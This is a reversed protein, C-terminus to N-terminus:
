RANCPVGNSNVFPAEAWAMYIYTNGSGNYSNSSSRIKFGNSLIDAFTETGEATNTSPYLIADAVNYTDRKTDFIRYDGTIDTVKVLIMAPQFGTYIFAGDANGNGTYGGFKSYGQKESWLYAVITKGDENGWDGAAGFTVVSSTPATDNLFTIDDATAATAHMELVDTEPASTNKHHYLGWAYVDSRQKFIMLHPATTLAVPLTHGAADNGTYTSIQFGATDNISTNYSTGTGSGTTTGSSTTGAKWCWAVNAEGDENNGNNAGLTFGNSDFSNVYTTETTEAATDNINIIKNAGRVTDATIFWSADSRDKTIILDPSMTTDTDNFTIANTSYNGTYLQVKFYASPDDITTYAAM